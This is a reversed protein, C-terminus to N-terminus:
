AAPVDVDRDAARERLEAFFADREAEDEEISLAGDESEALGAELVAALEEGTLGRHYDEGEWEGEEFGDFGAPPPFDTRWEGNDERWIREHCFNDGPPYDGPPNDVEDVEPPLPALLRAADSTRDESLADLMLQWDGSVAPPPVPIESNSPTRFTAGLEARRDLRRLIAFALNNDFHHREGVIAGDRLLQEASGKLSRALLEDALRGRAMSLAAEWAQAFVSDRHRLAYASQASMGCARCTDTVVGTEALTECFRAMSAGDWGDHRLRKTESFSTDLWCATGSVPDAPPTPPSRDSEIIDM